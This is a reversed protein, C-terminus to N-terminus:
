CIEQTLQRPVSPRAARGCSKRKLTQRFAPLILSGAKGADEDVQFIFENLSRMGYTIPDMNFWSQCAMHIIFLQNIQPVAEPPTTVFVARWAVQGGGELQAPVLRVVLYPPGAPAGLASSLRIYAEKIDRGDIIWSAVHLGAENDIELTVTSNTSAGTYTGAYVTQAEAKGAAELARVLPPLIIDSIGFQIAGRSLEGASEISLVLGYDPVLIFLSLYDGVGGNKTYVDIVRGDVTLNNARGIEWPSGVSIGLSATHSRPKLWAKTAAESLLQYSLIGRGFKALDNSSSYYGGAGVTDDEPKALYTRTMNLPELISQQIYSEYSQGSVREIVRALISYAMNGYIPTTYPGYMPVRKGYNNSFDDWTCPSLFPSTGCMAFDDEDILPLGFDQPDLLPVTALDSGVNGGVGSLQSALADLTVGEWNVTTVANHQDQQEKLDELEPLYKLVSDAMNVKDGLLLLGMVTFVKSVSGVRFVTDGDVVSTGSTNLVPPRYALNLLPSDEYVSAISISMASANQFLGAAAAEFGKLESLVAQVVPNSSPQRPAPLVAGLPPCNLVLAFLIAGSSFLHM